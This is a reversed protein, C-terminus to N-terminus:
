EELLAATRRQLALSEGRSDKLRLAKQKLKWIEIQIYCDLVKMVDQPFALAERETIQPMSVNDLNGGGRYKNRM